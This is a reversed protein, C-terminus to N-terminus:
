FMSLSLKAFVDLDSHDLVSIKYSYNTYGGSLAIILLKAGEECARDFKQLIEVDSDAAKTQKVEKILEM